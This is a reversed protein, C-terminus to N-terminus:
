IRNLNYTNEETVKEIQIHSPHRCLCIFLVLDGPDPPVPAQSGGLMARPISSLDEAPTALVRLLQAM